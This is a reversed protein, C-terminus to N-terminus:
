IIIFINIICIKFIEFFTIGFYFFCHFAFVNILVQHLISNAERKKDLAKALANIAKDRKKIEEELKYVEKKMEEYAQFESEVIIM